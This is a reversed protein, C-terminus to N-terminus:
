RRLLWDVPYQGPMPEQDATARARSPAPSPRGEPKVWSTTNRLHGPQWSCLMTRSFSKTHTKQSLSRGSAHFTSGAAHPGRDVTFCGQGALAQM